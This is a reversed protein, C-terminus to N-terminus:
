RRRLVGESSVGAGSFSYELTDDDLPVLEVTGTGKCQGGAGSDITERFRYATADAGLFDWSGSCDIGSYRVTNQKSRELSDITARVTFPKLGQQTLRGEWEGTIEFQGAANATTIEPEEREGCAGLALAALLAAATILALRRVGHDLCTAAARQTM